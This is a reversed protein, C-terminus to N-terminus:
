SSEVVDIQIHRYTEGTCPCLELRYRIEGELKDLAEQRDFARVEVHGVDSSDHQALWGAPLRTISCKVNM